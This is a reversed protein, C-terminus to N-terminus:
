IWCVKLNVYCEVGFSIFLFLYRRQQWWIWFCTAIKTFVTHFAISSKIGGGRWMMRLPYSHFPSPILLDNSEFITHNAQATLRQKSIASNLIQFLKWLNPNLFFWIMLQRIISFWTRTYRLEINYTTWSCIELLLFIAWFSVFLFVCFSM